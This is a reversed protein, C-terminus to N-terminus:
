NNSLNSLNVFIMILCICKKSLLCVEKSKQIYLTTVLNAFLVHQTLFSSKLNNIVNIRLAGCM